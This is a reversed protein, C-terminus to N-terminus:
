AITGNSLPLPATNSQTSPSGEVVIEGVQATISISGHNIFEAILAKCLAAFEAKVQAKAIGQKSKDDVTAGRVFVPKGDVFTNPIQAADYLPQLTNIFYDNIAATTPRGDNLAM